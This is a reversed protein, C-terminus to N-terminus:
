SVVIFPPCRICNRLHACGSKPLLISFSSLLHHRSPQKLVDVIGDVLANSDGSQKYAKLAKKVAEFAEPPLEAKLQDM